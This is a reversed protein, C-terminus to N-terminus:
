YINKNYKIKWNHKNYESNDKSLYQIAKQLTEISDGLLGIGSNCNSCLLGRIEYTNHNHDICLSIQLYSQHKGCIACKGEQKNFIINYEEPNIGYSRVLKDRVKNINEKEAISELKNFNDLKLVSTENIKKNFHKGM